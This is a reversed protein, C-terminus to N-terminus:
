KQVWSKLLWNAITFPPPTKFTQEEEIEQSKEPNSSRQIHSNSELALKIQKKSFWKADEIEKGDEKIDSSIADGSCGIM